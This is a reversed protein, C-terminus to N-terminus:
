YHADGPALDLRRPGVTLNTLGKTSEETFTLGISSQDTEPKGDPHYHLQIVLDAGKEIVYGTGAPLPQPIAGPAWGGLGGAPVVRPGGFCPYGDGPSATDLRRAEGSMDLFFLAHHVVKPNGPHFEVTKVYREAGFEM